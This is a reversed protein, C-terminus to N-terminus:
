YLNIDVVVSTKIPFTLDIMAGFPIVRKKKGGVEQLTLQASAFYTFIFIFAYTLVHKIM